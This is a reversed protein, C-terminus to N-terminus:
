SSVQNMEDYDISDLDDYLASREAETLDGWFRLLHSQQREGLKKQLKSLDMRFLIAVTIIFLNLNSLLINLSLNDFQSCLKCLKFFHCNKNMNQLM